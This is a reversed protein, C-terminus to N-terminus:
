GAFLGVCKIYKIYFRDLIQIFLLLIDSVALWINCWYRERQLALCQTQNLFSGESSLKLDYGLCSSGEDGNSHSVGIKCDASLLNTM